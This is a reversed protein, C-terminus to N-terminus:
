SSLLKAKGRSRVGKAPAGGGEGAIGFGNATSRKTPSPENTPSKFNQTQRRGTWRLHPMGGGRKQRQSKDNM